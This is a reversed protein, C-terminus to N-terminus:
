SVKLPLTEINLTKYACHVPTEAHEDGCVLSELTRLEASHSSCVAHPRLQIVVVPHQREFPAHESSKGISGECPVSAIVDM